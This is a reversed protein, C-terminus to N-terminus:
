VSSAFLFNLNRLFCPKSVNGTITAFVCALIESSGLFILAGEPYVKVILSKSSEEPAPNTTARAPSIILIGPSELIGFATFM